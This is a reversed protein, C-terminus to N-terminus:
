EVALGRGDDLFDLGAVSSVDAFSGNGTNLYCTNRERGSWSKGQRILEYTASWGEIYDEGPPTEDTPSHSM